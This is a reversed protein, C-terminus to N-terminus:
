VDGDRERGKWGAGSTGCGRNKEARRRREIGWAALQPAISPGRGAARRRSTAGTKALRRDSGALRRARAAADRFILKKESGWWGQRPDAAWPEYGSAPLVTSAM